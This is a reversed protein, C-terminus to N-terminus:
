RGYRVFLAIALWVAMCLLLGTAGDLANRARDEPGQRSAFLLRPAFAVIGIVPAPHLLAATLAIGREAMGYIRAADLKLIPDAREDDAMVAMRVEFTLISGLFAVAVIGCIGAIRSPSMQWIFVASTLDHRFLSSILAISIMHLVQDLLFLMLGSTSHARRAHITLHEIGLHAVGVMLVAPWLESISGVMVLATCVTVITIHAAMGIIGNRKARVLGGPQLVFDGLLHGLYAQLFLTM